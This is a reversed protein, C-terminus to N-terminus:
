LAAQLCCRCNWRAHHYGEALPLFPQWSHRWAALHYCAASLRKNAVTCCKQRQCCQVHCPNFALQSEAGAGWLPEASYIIAAVPSSVDKLANMEIWSRGTPCVLTKLCARTHPAHLQIWAGGIQPPAWHVAAATAPTSLNRACCPGSRMFASNMTPSTQKIYPWSLKFDPPFECRSPQPASAWSCSRLGRCGSSATSCTRCIM